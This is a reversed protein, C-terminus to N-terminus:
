AGAFLRGCISICLIRILRLPDCVCCLCSLLLTHLFSTNRHPLFTPLIPFLTFSSLNVLILSCLIFFLKYHLFSYESYFLIFLFNYIFYERRQIMIYSFFLSSDDSTRKKNIPLSTQKKILFILYVNHISTYM